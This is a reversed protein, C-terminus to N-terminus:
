DREPRPLVKLKGSYKASDALYERASSDRTAGSEMLEEYESIMSLDRNLDGDRLLGANSSRLGELLIRYQRSLELAENDAGRMLAQASKDLVSALRSALYNKLVNLELPGAVRSDRGLSLNSRAVGNKLFVLDKYRATVDAIPGSGPAVLDLLIVHADGAYFAPIVIQIGEEDEGRDAEIGLNRAIRQDISQEAQRVRQAAQDDLSYSDIVDILKVGAALRIRLRVARAVVRSVATIERKVLEEAEFASGLLRRNGQGALAISTLEDVSISQGFGITSIPVGAVASAHAIQMLRQTLNGLKRPTILVVVSSGLATSPDDASRVVQIAQQVAQELSFTEGAAQAAQGDFLQALAVSVTGHRFDGPKIITAGPCGAVTLSVRDGIDRAKEFARLLAKFAEVDAPAPNGSLDFVVGMNMAPRSGSFRKTAQLGVQLLLRSREQIGGHDSHLYVALAADSPADFPQAPQRSADDLLLRTTVYRQLASRDKGNLKTSLSWLLPDGPVYTNAWYGSPQKFRLGETRTRERWFDEVIPSTNDRSRKSEGPKLSPKPQTISNENDARLTKQFDYKDQVNFRQKEPPMLEENLSRVEVQSTVVDGEKEDKAAPAQASAQVSLNDTPLQVAAEESETTVASKPQVYGEPARKMDERSSLDSFEKKTNLEGGQEEIMPARANTVASETEAQRELIRKLIEAQREESVGRAAKEANLERRLDKLEISDADQIDGSSDQGIPGQKTAARLGSSGKAKDGYSYSHTSPYYGGSGGTASATQSFSQSVSEVNFFMNKGVRQMAFFLILCGIGTVLALRAARAPGLWGILRWIFDALASFPRREEKPDDIQDARVAEITRDVLADTADYLPLSDLDKETRTLAELFGFCDNCASLHGQAQKDAKIAEIGEEALRNQLKECDRKM